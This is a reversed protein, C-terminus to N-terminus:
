TGGFERKTAAFWRPNSRDSPKEKIWMGPPDGQGDWEECAREAEETTEFCFRSGWSFEQIDVFLGATFLMNQVAIWRGDPLQRPHLYCEVAFWERSPFRSM